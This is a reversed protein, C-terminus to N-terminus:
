GQLGYLSFGTNGSVRIGVKRGKVNVPVAILNNWGGQLNLGNVSRDVNSWHSGDCTTQLSGRTLDFAEGLYFDVPYPSQRRVKEELPSLLATTVLTSVYDDGGDTYENSDEFVVISRKQENYGTEPNFIKQEIICFLRDNGGRSPLACADIFKGATKWRHWAKVNHFTNYTCLALQGDGLVFVAVTEPVRLLAAPNGGGHQEFMHSALVTLDGCRYADGEYWYGYEFCRTGGRNIFIAKDGSTLAMQFKSGTYDQVLCKLSTNTTAGGTKIIYEAESTGFLLNGRHEKLWCIPNQSHTAPTLALAADDTSGTLFNNLDDTRSMWLTQPQGKTSAFVLRQDLTEVLRPYGYRSSFAGWSWDFTRHSEENGEKIKIPSIDTWERSRRGDELTVIKLEFVYDHRYSSIILRNKCSDAPFGEAWNTPSLRRSKRLFLALWCEEDKEDGAPQVNAAAEFSSVSRAQEEWGAAFIDSSEYNRMVSYEGDWAGSCYFSWKGGCPLVEGLHVGAIFYETDKFGLSPASFVEKCCTYYEWYEQRVAIITNKVFVKDKLSYIINKEEVGGPPPLTERFKAPYSLPMEVGPFYDTTVWADVCIYYKLPTDAKPVAFVAGPKARNPVTGPEVMTIKSGMEKILSTTEKQERWLSARLISDSDMAYEPTADKDEFFINLQDNSFRTFHLAHKKYEHEDHWPHQKFEWAKFTWKGEEDLKLVMPPNSVCCIFLLANYQRYSIQEDLKFGENFRAVEEGKENLVRVVQPSIEVLFRSDDEHHSYVYEVLQSNPLADIVKRWGKRRKVAGSQLVDMNELVSCGRGVSEIDTRMQVEPALEGANFSVIGRM